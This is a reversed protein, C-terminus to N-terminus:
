RNICTKFCAKTSLYIHLKQLDTGSESTLQNIVTENQDLSMFYQTDPYNNGFQLHKCTHRPTFSCRGYKSGNKPTILMLKCGSETMKQRSQHIYMYRRTMQSYNLVVIDNILILFLIPGLVSGQPIGSAVNRWESYIGNIVVCQKRNSLFEKVWNYM